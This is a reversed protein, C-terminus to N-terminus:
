RIGFTTGQPTYVKVKLIESTWSQLVRNTSGATELLDYVYYVTPMKDGKKDCRIDMTAFSYPGKDGYMEYSIQYVPKNTHILVDREPGYRVQITTSGYGVVAVEGTFAVTLNTANVVPEVPEFLTLPPVALAHLETSSYKGVNGGDNNTFRVAFNLNTGFPLTDFYFDQSASTVIMGEDLVIENTLEEGEGGWLLVATASTAEDGLFYLYTELRVIGDEQVVVERLEGFPITTDYPQPAYRIYVCGSGGNAAYHAYTNNGGGGGGGFGDAGATADRGNSAGNGGAGGGPYITGSNVSGGGGGGSYVLMEGTIDDFVGAGGNYGSYASGAGSGGRNAATTAAGGAALLNYSGLSLFSNEGAGGTASYGSATQGGSGVHVSGTLGGAIDSMTGKEVSGGDGGAGATSPNGASGQRGAAGGGVALYRISVTQGALTMPATFSSDGLPFSHLIDPIDSGADIMTLTGGDGMSYAAYGPMTSSAVASTIEGGAGSMVAKLYYTADRDLESLSFRAFRVQPDEETLAFEGAVFPCDSADLGAATKAYYLKASTDGANANAKATWMLLGGIIEWQTSVHCSRYRFIVVGDAGSSPASGDPAAEKNPYGGGGGGSGTNQVPDSAPTKSESNAGNGGIGSGGLGGYSPTNSNSACCTGAGGGAYWTDVGTIACKIGAGGNGGHHKSDSAWVNDMGGMRGAGGGGVGYGHFSRVSFERYGGSTGEEFDVPITYVGGSSGGSGGPTGADWGAGGGGGHAVVVPVANITLQSDGGNKGNGSGKVGGAGVTVAVSQGAPVTLQGFRVGGAGGGSSTYKGGGSGGGGIVLYDVVLPEDVPATFTGSETFKHVFEGTSLQRIENGGQASATKVQAGVGSAAAYEGIAIDGEVTRDICGNVVPTLEAGSYRIIVIGSGGCGGAMHSQANKSCGGGGGGGTGKVGCQGNKGSANGSGAGGGGIGGAGGAYATDRGGGGGGGAFTLYEGAIYTSCGDGGAGGANATAATTAGYNAYGSGGDGNNNAGKGNGGIGSRANVTVGAQEFSGGGGGGYATIVTGGLTLTSSEGNDGKTTTSSGGLNNSEFYIAPDYRAQFFSKNGSDTDGVGGRGVVLDVMGGAPVELTGFEVGGAGGGGGDCDGGGGGGGVILYHITVGANEPARFTGNDYFIHVYDGNALKRISSGGKCPSMGTRERAEEVFGDDLPTVAASAGLWPVVFLAVLLFTPCLQKM